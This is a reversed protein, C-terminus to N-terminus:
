IPVGEFIAFQADLPITRDLRFKAREFLDAYEAVTRERGGPNVLMNLDSLLADIDDPGVRASFIREVVLLRATMLRWMARNTDTTSM